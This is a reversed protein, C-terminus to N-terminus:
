QGSSVEGLGTNLNAIVNRIAEKEAEYLIPKTDAFLMYANLAGVQGFLQNLQPHKELGDQMGKKFSDDNTVDYDLYNTDAWELGALYGQNFLNTQHKKMENDMLRMELARTDIESDDGFFDDDDM